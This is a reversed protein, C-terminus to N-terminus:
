GDIIYIGAGLGNSSYEVVKGRAILKRLASNPQSAPDFQGASVKLFPVLKIAEDTEPVPCGTTCPVKGILGKAKRERLMNSVKPNYSHIVVNNPVRGRMKEVAHSPPYLMEAYIGSVGTKTDGTQIYCSANKAIRVGGMTFFGTPTQASGFGLGNRGTGCNLTEVVESTKRSLVHMRQRAPDVVYVIDPDYDPFGAERQAQISAEIDHINDGLLSVTKPPVVRESAAATVVILSALLFLLRRTM